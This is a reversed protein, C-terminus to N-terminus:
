MCLLLKIERRKRRSITCITGDKLYVKGDITIQQVYNKNVLHSQHIRIFDGNCIAAACVSLTKAIIVTKQNAFFIKTYNSSAQCRIIVNTDQIFAGLYKNICNSTLM